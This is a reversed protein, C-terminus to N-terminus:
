STPGPTSEGPRLSTLRHHLISHYSTMDRIRQYDQSTLLNDLEREVQDLTMRQVAARYRARRESAVSSQTSTSPDSRRVRTPGQAEMYSPPASSDPPPATNMRQTTQMPLPQADANPIVRSRGAVTSVRVRGVSAPRQGNGSPSESPPVGDRFVPAESEVWINGTRDRAASGMLGYAYDSAGAAARNRRMRRGSRASDDGMARDYASFEESEWGGADRIQADYEDRDLWVYRGNIKVMVDDLRHSDRFVEHRFGRKILDFIYDESSEEIRRNMHAKIFSAEVGINTAGAGLHIGYVLKGCFYPFGSFGATTSGEYSLMGFDTSPRIPGVSFLNGNHITVNLFVDKALSTPVLKAECLRLPQFLSKDKVVSVDSAGTPEFKDPFLRVSGYKSFIELEEAHEIVHSATLFGEAVMFGGGSNYWAGDIKVKVNAVFDPPKSTVFTSGSIMRECAYGGRFVKRVIVKPRRLSWLKLLMSLVITLILVILFAIMLRFLFDTLFSDVNQRYMQTFWEMFTQPRTRLKRLMDLELSKQRLERKLFEFSDSTKDRGLDKLYLLSRAIWFAAASYSDYCFWLSVMFLFCSPHDLIMKVIVLVWVLFRGISCLYLWIPRLIRDVVGCAHHVPDQAVEHDVGLPRAAEPFAVADVFGEDNVDEFDILNGM